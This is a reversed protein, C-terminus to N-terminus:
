FTNIKWTIKDGTTLIYSGAGVESPNGIVLLEWFENKKTDAAKGNISTIYSNIGTGETKIETVTKKTAELATKGVFSSTEIVVTETKNNVPSNNKNTQTFFLLSSLGVIILALILYKRM